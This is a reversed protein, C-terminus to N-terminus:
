ADILGRERAEAIIEKPDRDYRSPAHENKEAAEHARMEDYLYHAVTPPLDITSAYLSKRHDHGHLSYDRFIIEWSGYNGEVIKDVKALFKIAREAQKALKEDKKAQKEAARQERQEKNYRGRAAKQEAPAIPMCVSCANYAERDVVEQETLGSLDTRWAYQTDPFCSSCNRSNHIHGNANTVHWYRPWARRGYEVELPWAKDKAQALDNLAEQEDEDTYPNYFYKGEAKAIRAKKRTTLISQYRVEAKQQEWYITALEGDIESPKANVLDM